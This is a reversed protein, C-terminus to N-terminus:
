HLYILYIVKKHHLIYFNINMKELLSNVKGDYTTFSQFVDKNPLSEIKDSWLTFEGYNNLYSNILETINGMNNQFLNRVYEKIEDDQLLQNIKYSFIFVNRQSYRYIFKNFDLSFLILSVVLLADTLKTDDNITKGLKKELLNEIYYHDLKYYPDFDILKIENFSFTNEDKVDYDILMNLSKIDFFVYGYNIVKRLLIPIVQELYSILQQFRLNFITINESSYYIDIEKTIFDYIDYKYAKMIIIGYQDIILSNYIQPAVLLDSM